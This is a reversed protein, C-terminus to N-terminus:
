SKNMDSVFLNQYQNVCRDLSYARSALEKSEKGMKDRLSENRLLTCLTCLANTLGKIDDIRILFGNKNPIIVDRIGEVNTGVVPLGAAMAEILSIPLGEKFSTLCFIDLISLISSIDSRFGLLLVDNDLGKDNIFNRIQLESNEADGKFGQGVLLLKVDKYEELLKEFARLLFIHNKIRKFNAVMGIIRHTDPIGLERRKEGDTSKRSFAELDVGNQITLVKSPPLKFRSQILKTVEANVGVAGDSHNLLYAGIKRWKWAIQEIEWKSHETYILKIDNKIKCGYFSYVLSMFHHANVIHIKNKRIIMELKRMTSFDFRKIKPIHYLPIGLDKFEKLVRNEFFWAVSPNFFERDIKFALNHVLRESGGMGMQMMIFLLNTKGVPSGM